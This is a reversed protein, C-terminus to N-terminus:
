RITDAVRASGGPDNVARSRRFWDITRGLGTRLDTEVQWCGHDIIKRIDAVSHEIDGPRSPCHQVYPSAGSDANICVASKLADHGNDVMNLVQRALDLISVSQGSGLNYIGAPLAPMEMLGAASFYAKVVDQIFIFDRSQSGDGFITLPEGDLAQSIFRSIVGSYPSSPDQRPGYINFIRLAVGIPDESVLRSARFKSQGYPSLQRTVESAYQEQIPLRLEAGYEAASGAFVFRAAGSRRALDLLLCTSEFNVLNTEVAHSVSYPVSVIAALHFVAQLPSVRKFVRRMLDEDLVSGHVFRFQPNGQFRHVNKVNGSSLDDIGVVGYGSELLAHTLHGGVFGANGTVVCIGGQKSDRAIEALTVMDM